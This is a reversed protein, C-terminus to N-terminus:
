RFTSLSPNLARDDIDISILQPATTDPSAPTNNSVPRATFSAAGNGAADWVAGYDSSITVSQGATVASSLILVVTKHTSDYVAAVTSSKGDVFVTYFAKRRWWENGELLGADTYSLVLQKGNVTADSLVPPDADATSVAYNNSTPNGTATNGARDMVGSLNTVSISNNAVTADTAPTLTGEWITSGNVGNIPITALLSPHVDSLWGNTVSVCDSSFGSVAEDFTFIVTSKEGATLKSDDVMISILRPAKTDVTYNQSSIGNGTAANGAADMVGILNSVRISNGSSEVGPAPIFTGSWTRSSDWSALDGLTGNSVILHDKTLGDVAEDFTIFIAAREHERLARDDIVIRILQPATTDPSAPTNNTVPQDRLSAADHGVADQTANGDDGTTPDAYSVTVSQGATVANSLILMVTKAAANVTVATVANPVNGVRVTFAGKDAKHTADLLTTDTYSLVLRKGNVTAGSLMPPDNDVTNVAYNHSTPDGRAANSFADTVGRLDIVSIVNNADTINAEPTLTGTWTKGDSSRLDGLTGNSVTLHNKTFGTVAEDFAFTVTTVVGATLNGDKLWIDTLKPPAKTDTAYSQSTIGYGDRRVVNGAADTVNRFDGRIVDSSREIGAEPTLTGTWTKGDASRILKSLLGGGASVLLDNQTLGFVAEDFTITVTAHDGARLVRDDIDISILRPARTDPSTPTNNTVAQPALSAADNGAADQVVSSENLNPNEIYSVTVTQGATVMDTLMLTVTKAVADVIVYDIRIDTVAGAVRVTFAGENVTHMADLLTADSYSLVLRWGNVTASSFVPPDNDVTNVAYDNSTPNGTAVNDALDTVGSLNNVSIANSAATTNEKPTLVGTWTKGGDDSKLSSLSGNPVTLNELTFGSVAEDFTVTVTTSVGVTLHSDGVQIRTLTPAKTDVTYSQSTIGDRGTATHGAADMVGSLNNIRIVNGAHETSAAPTLSATWTKGDASRTPDGLTGNPVILHNKTLGTVAEDFIITVTAQDGAKLVRDDINISLLRPATTDTGPVNKSVPQERPSSADTDTAAKDFHRSSM